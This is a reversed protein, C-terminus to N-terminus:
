NGRSTIIFTTFNYPNAGIQLHGLVSGPAFDAGHFYQQQKIKLYKTMMIEVTAAERRAESPTGYANLDHLSHFSLWPKELITESIWLQHWQLQPFGRVICSTRIPGSM